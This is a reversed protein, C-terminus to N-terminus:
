DEAAAYRFWLWWLGYLCLLLPELPLPLHHERAHAETRRRVKPAEYSREFNVQWVGELPEAELQTLAGGRRFHWRTSHLSHNFRAVQERDVETYATVLPASLSNNHARQTDESSLTGWDGRLAQGSRPVKTPWETLTTLTLTYPQDTPSPERKFPKPLKPRTAWYSPASAPSTFIWTSSWTEKHQHGEERKPNVFLAAVALGKAYVEKVTLAHPASLVLGKSILWEHLASETAYVGTHQSRWVGRREQPRTNTLETHNLARWLLSYVSLKLTQEYTVRPGVRRKLERWIATTTYTIEVGKPVAILLAFRDPAGSLAAQAV